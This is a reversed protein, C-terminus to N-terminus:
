RHLRQITKELKCEVLISVKSAANPKLRTPEELNHNLLAITPSFQRFDFKPQIMEVPSEARNPPNLNFNKPPLLQYSATPTSVYAHNSGVPPDSEGALARLEAESSAKRAIIADKERLEREKQLEKDRWEKEMVRLEKEKTLEVKLSNFYAGAAFIAVASAGVLGLPTGHQQLFGAIAKVSNM